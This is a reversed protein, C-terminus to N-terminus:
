RTPNYEKIKLSFPTILRSATLKKRLIALMFNFYLEWNDCHIDLLHITEFTSFITFPKLGVAEWIKRKMLFHSCNIKFQIPIRLISPDYNLLM